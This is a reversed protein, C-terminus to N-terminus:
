RNTKSQYGPFLYEFVIYKAIIYLNLCFHISAVVFQFFSTHYLVEHFCFFFANNLTTYVLIIMYLM